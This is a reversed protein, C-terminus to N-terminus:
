SRSQKGWVEWLRESTSAPWKRRTIGHKTVQTALQQPNGDISAEAMAKLLQHPTPYVKVLSYAKEANVGRITMLMKTYLDQLTTTGSKSNLQNYIAYPIVQYTSSHRENLATKLAYYNNRNILPTPIEQLTTDQM